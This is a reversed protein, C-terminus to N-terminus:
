AMSSYIRTVKIDDFSNPYTFALINQTSGQQKSVANLTLRVNTVIAVQTNQYFESCYLGSNLMALLKSPGKLLDLFEKQPEQM